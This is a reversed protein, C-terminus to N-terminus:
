DINIQISVNFARESENDLYSKLDVLTQKLQMLKKENFPNQHDNRIVAGFHNLEYFSITHSLMELLFTKTTAKDLHNETFSLQKPIM